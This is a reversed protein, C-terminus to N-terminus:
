RALVGTVTGCIQISPDWTPPASASLSIRPSDSTTGFGSRPWDPEPWRGAVPVRDLALLSRGYFSVYHRDFACPSLHAQTPTFCPVRLAVSKMASPARCGGLTGM